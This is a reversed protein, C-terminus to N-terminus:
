LRRWVRQLNGHGIVRESKAFRGTWVILRLKSQAGFFAGVVNNRAVGRDPLGVEAVLDDATFERGHEIGRLWSLAADKWLQVRQAHEALDMGDVARLAAETADYLLADDFSLQGDDGAAQSM